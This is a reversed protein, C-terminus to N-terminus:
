IILWRLFIKKAIEVSINKTVIIDFISLYICINNFSKGGIWMYLCHRLLGFRIYMIVSILFASNSFKANIIGLVLVM